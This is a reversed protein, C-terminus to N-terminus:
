VQCRCGYIVWKVVSVLVLGDSGVSGTVLRVLVSLSTGFEWFTYKLSRLLIVWFRDNRVM